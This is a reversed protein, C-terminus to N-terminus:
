GIATHFVSMGDIPVRRVQATLPTSSWKFAQLNLCTGDQSFGCECPDDLTMFRFDRRAAANGKNCSKAYWMTVNAVKPTMPDQPYSLVARIDGTDESITWSATPMPIGNILYKFFTGIAPLAQAFGTVTMHETNPMMLFHKPEPMDNWWYHTDDPQQFEDGGANVILKPMTLRDRYFYPDEIEQLKIMNPDDFRATINM